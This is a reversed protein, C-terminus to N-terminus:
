KEAGPLLRPLKGTAGIEKLRGVLKEGVTSGDPTMVNAMFEHEFTTIGTDVAELKAKIVLLLARWRRKIEQEHHQMAQNAKRKRGKDTKSFEDTTPMPVTFKLRLSNLDFLLFGYGEDEDWGSMFRNGGARRIIKEIEERSRDATVTTNQAYSM